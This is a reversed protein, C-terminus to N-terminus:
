DQATDARAIDGVAAPKDNKQVEHFDYHAEDFHEQDDFMSDAKYCLSSLFGSILGGIISIALTCGLAALQYWGQESTTRGDEVIAAFTRGLTEENEFTDYHPASAM